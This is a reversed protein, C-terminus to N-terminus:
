VSCMPCVVPCLGWTMCITATPRWAEVRRCRCAEVCSRVKPTPYYTFQAMKLGHDQGNLTVAVRVTVGAVSTGNSNWELPQEPAICMVETPSVYIASVDAITAVAKNDIGNTTSSVGFRCGLEPLDEFGSGTLKVRTGGASPGSAPFAIRVEADEKFTFLMGSNTWLAPDDGPDPPLEFETGRSSSGLLLHDSVEIHVAGTGVPVAPTVCTLMEASLFEATTTAVTGFRCLVVSTNAFNVGLVRLFTGGRAPGQNPELATVAARDTYTFFPGQEYDGESAIAVASSHQGPSFDQGNLSVSVSVVSLRVQPPASCAVTGPRVYEAAVVEVGFRCALHEDRRFGSGHVLVRVGGTAPGKEPVIAAVSVDDDYLFSVSANSSSFDLGNMTVRLAVGREIRSKNAVVERAHEGVAVGAASSLPSSTCVLTSDDVVRAPTPEGVGFLCAAQPLDLFGSGSVRVVTGGSAPGAAPSMRVLGIDAHYRFSLLVPELDSFVPVASALVIDTVNERFGYWSGAGRTLGNDQHILVQLTVVGPQQSGPVPPADCAVASSNVFIASVPPNSSGFACLYAEERHFVEGLVTVVTGGMAPGLVPWSSSVRLAGIYEVTLDGDSAFSQGYSTVTIAALGPRRSPAICTLVQASHRTAPVPLEDGIVCALTSPYTEPFGSGRVTIVTGGGERLIVPSVGQVFPDSPDYFYMPGDMSRTFFAGNSSVDISFLGGVESGSPCKPAKVSLEKSNIFTAPVTTTAANDFFAYGTVNVLTESLTFRVALDLTDRFDSGFISLTTGGAVPGEHPQIGSVLEPPYFHFTLTGNNGEAGDKFAFDTKRKTNAYRLAVTM